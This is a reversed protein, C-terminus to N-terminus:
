GPKADLSAALERADAALTDARAPDDTARPAFRWRYYRAVLAARRDAPQGDPIARALFCALTEGPEPLLGRQALRRLLVDLPTAGGGATAAADANGAESVALPSRRLRLYLVIALPPVLWILWGSWADFDAQTLRQYRYWLWAFADQLGQWSSAHENELAYWVSPTTDVTVWAGDVWALAWSHAHRARAIWAREIPSYHEVAYGVAYRAPIGARRLLLVTSSAFYECHGRRTETLFRAIPTRWTFSGRQILSYTFNDLFFSRIRAAAKAADAPEDLGIEALTRDLVAEYAPPVHLDAARPAPAPSGGTVARYRVVGPPSEAMLAGFPNQQLEVIEGSEIRETGRPVPLLALERRHTLAIDLTRVPAAAPAATQWADAGAIVDLAEFAGAAASWTGFTFTDYSAEQLLLPVPLDDSPAVRVRIQDSLKLRGIHGIATVARNPDSPSWPFQNVWYMFSAELARHARLAAFQGALGLALAVALAGAWQWWAYRRPRAAALMGIVLAAVLLTYGYGRTGTTSAALVCLALYYPAVDLRRSFDRERRLSYFLASMPLTQATSARQALVLPFLCYPAVRLIEYIGHVSYRSFQVVTVVGFVISTLDAARHFEREAMAWKTPTFAIAELMVAMVVAGAINDTLVGWGVLGLSLWFRPMPIRADDSAATNM